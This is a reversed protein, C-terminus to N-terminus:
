RLRVCACVVYVWAHCPCIAYACVHFVRCVYTHMCLLCIYCVYMDSVRVHLCACVYMSVCMACLMVYMSVYTVSFNCVCSFIAHCVYVYVCMLACVCVCLCVCLGMPPFLCLHIPFQVKRGLLPWASKEIHYNSFDKALNTKGPFVQPPRWREGVSLRQDLCGVVFLLLSSWLLLISTLEFLEVCEVCLPFLYIFLYLPVSTILISLILFSNERKKNKLHAVKISFWGILISRSYWHGRLVWIWSLMRQNIALTKATDLFHFM